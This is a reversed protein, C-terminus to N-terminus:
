SEQYRCQLLIQKIKELYFLKRGTSDSIRWPSYSLSNEGSFMTKELSFTEITNIM